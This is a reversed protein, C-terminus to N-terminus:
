NKQISVIIQTCLFCNYNWVTHDFGASILINNATPHWEINLVKRKHGLLEMQWEGLNSTLGGDPIEWIKIQIWLFFVCM